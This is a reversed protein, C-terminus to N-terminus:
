GDAAEAVELWLAGDVDECGALREAGEPDAGEAGREEAGGKGGPERLVEDGEDVAGLDRPELFLFLCRLLEGWM